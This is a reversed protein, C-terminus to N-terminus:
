QLRSAISMFWFSCCSLFQSTHYSDGRDKTNEGDDKRNDRSSDRGLRDPAQPGKRFIRLQFHSFFFTTHSFCHCRSSLKLPSLILSLLCVFRESESRAFLGSAALFVRRLHRLRWPLAALPWGGGLWAGVFRLSAASVAKRNEGGRM